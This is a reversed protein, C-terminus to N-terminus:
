MLHAVLENQVSRLENPKFIFIWVGVADRVRELVPHAEYDFLPAFSGDPCEVVFGTPTTAAALLEQTALRLGEKRQNCVIGCMRKLRFFHWRGRLSSLEVPTEELEDKRKKCRAFEVVFDTLVNGEDFFRVVTKIRKGRAMHERSSEIMTPLSLSKLVAYMEPHFFEVQVLNQKSM